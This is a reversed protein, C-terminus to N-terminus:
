YALDGPKNRGGAKRMSMKKNLIETIPSIEFQYSFALFNDQLCYASLIFQILFLLRRLIFLKESLKWTIYKNICSFFFFSFFMKQIMKRLERM